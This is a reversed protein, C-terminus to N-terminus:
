HPGRPGGELIDITAVACGPGVHRLRAMVARAEEALRRAFGAVLANGEADSLPRGLAAECDDIRAILLRSFEGGLDGAGCAPACREALALYREVLDM